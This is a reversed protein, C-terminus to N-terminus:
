FGFGFLVTGSAPLGVKFGHCDTRVMCYLQSEASEFDQLLPHSEPLGTRLVWNVLFTANTTEWKQLFSQFTLFKELRSSTFFYLFYVSADIQLQVSVYTQCFWALIQEEAVYLVCLFESFVQTNLTNEQLKFIVLLRSTSRCQIICVSERFTHM